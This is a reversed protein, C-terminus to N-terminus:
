PTEGFVTKFHAKMSVILWGEQQAKRLLAEKRYVFERPDDHDIVGSLHRYPSTAPFELMWVDGNSNGFALVPAQGTRMKIRVAKGRGLNIPPRGKGRLFVMRGNRKEVTAEVRSGICRSEEVHFYKESIAMIAFQFSGSVVYVSFGRAHLLDILEIMPQYVLDKHRKGNQSNVATEFVKLCYDRFFDYTQGEFPLVFTDELNRRLYQIDGAEAADCLAKTAPGKRSLEPAYEILYHMVVELVFYHPREALLTGDMDFVAVRDQVPIFDRHGPTSVDFIYDVLTDRVEGQWLSLAGQRSSSPTEQIHSCGIIFVTVALGMMFRTFTHRSLNTM